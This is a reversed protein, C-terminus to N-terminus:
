KVISLKEKFLLRNDKGFIEAVYFGSHFDKTLLLWVNAKFDANTAKYIQQGTLSRIQLTIDTDLGASLWNWRFEVYDKAPNPYMSFSSNVVQPRHPQPDTKTNSPLLYVPELYATDNLGYPALIANVRHRVWHSPSQNWQNQLTSLTGTALSDLREGNSFATNLTSYFELLETRTIDNQESWWQASANALTSMAATNQGKLWQYEAWMFVYDAEERNEFLHALSDTEWFASDTVYYYHVSRLNNAIKQNLSGLEAELVDKATITQSGNEVDSITQHSVPPDREQLAAVVEPSRGAHPNAVLVNRLALEPFDTNHILDILQGEDIYPSIDILEIYLQIYQQANALLIQAEIEATNGGNILQQHLERKVSRIYENASLEARLLNLDKNPGTGSDIKDSCDSAYTVSITQPLVWINLPNLPAFRANGTGHFYFFQYALPDNEIDMQNLSFLNNALDQASQSNPNGQNAAIGQQGGANLDTFTHIDRTNEIINGYNNCQFVLGNLNNTGKNSGIAETAISFGNFTNKYALNALPGNENFLAGISGRNSIGSSDVFNNQSFEYGTCADFYVGYPYNTRFPLTLVGPVNFNNKIIRANAHTNLYIGHRNNKFFSNAITTFRDARCVNTAHIAYKYGSFSNFKQPSTSVKDALFQASLAYIGKSKHLNGSTVNDFTCGMFQAGNVEWMSVAANPTEMNYNSDRLFSCNIFSAQYDVEGNANWFHYDVLQVDRRNNLFIADTATIIGGSTGWAFDNGTWGINSIATRAHSITGNNKLIFVGQTQPIQLQNSQGLVGVGEWSNANIGCSNFVTLHGGDLVVKAGSEISLGKGPSFYVTGGITLTNGSTVVVNTKFYHDTGTPWTTNQAIEFSATSEILPAQWMGRGYTAAYISNQCLEIKLQKIGIPPLGNNFCYWNSDVNNWYYVGADTGAYIVDDSGEQYALCNIALPPLGNTKGSSIDIWNNGSDNSYFVRWIADENYGACGVWLRNPKEPDIIIDTIWTWKLAYLNSTLNTWTQGGNTTRFLKNDYATGQNYTPQDFALYITNSDSDAVKFAHITGYNPKSTDQTFISHWTEDVLNFYHFRSNGWYIKNQAQYSIQIKLGLVGGSEPRSWPVSTKEFMNYNSGYLFSGNGTNYTLMSPNGNDVYFLRDTLQPHTDMWGVDGGFNTLHWTGNKNYSFNNHIAGGAILQGNLFSTIGNYETIVLGGGNLNLWKEGGDNSKNIGGDNVMYLIDAGTLPNIGLNKFGRIDAHTGTATGNSFYLSTTDWNTGMNASKLVVDGGIYIISDSINSLEFEHRYAGWHGLRPNNITDHTISYSTSLSVSNLTQWTQGSNTTKQLYRTRSCNANAYFMYIANNDVPSVDLAIALTISSSGGLCAQPTAQIPTSNSFSHGKNNSCFVEAYSTGNSAGFVATSACIQNPNGTSIELDIFVSNNTTLNEFVRYWTSGGDKSKWIFKNGAAFVLNSDIPHYRIVAINEIDIFTSLTSDEYAQHIFSWNLGSDISKLVGFSSTLNGYAKTFTGALVQNSSSPNIALAYVGFGPKNYKDTLNQWTMGNNSTKYIGGIEGAGVYITNTDNPDLEVCNLIGIRQMDQGYTPNPGLSSWPNSAPGQNCFLFSPFTNLQTKFNQYSTSPQGVVFHRSRAYEEWRAYRKEGPAWDSDNPNSAHWATFLSDAGHKIQAYALTPNHIQSELDELNQIQAFANACFACLLLTTINKM